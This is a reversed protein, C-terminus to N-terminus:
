KQNDVSYSGKYVHEPDNPDVYSYFVSARVAQYSFEQIQFDVVKGFIASKFGEDACQKFSAVKMPGRTESDHGAASISEKNWKTPPHLGNSGYVGTTHLYTIVKCTGPNQDALLASPALFFALTLLVFLSLKNLM